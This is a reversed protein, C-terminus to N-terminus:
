VALNLTDTVATTSFQYCQSFLYMFFICLHIFHIFLHILQPKLTSITVCKELLTTSEWIWKVELTRQIRGKVRHMWTVTKDWRHSRLPSLSM